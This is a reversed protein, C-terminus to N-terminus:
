IFENIYTFTNIEESARITTYGFENIAKKVYCYMSCHLNFIRIWICWVISYKILFSLKKREFVSNELLILTSVVHCLKWECCIALVIIYNFSMLNFNYQPKVKIQCDYISICTINRLIENLSLIIRTRVKWKLETVTVHLSTNWDLVYLNYTGKADSCFFMAVLWLRESPFVWRGPSPMKYPLTRVGSYSHFVQWPGFIWASRSMSCTFSSSGPRQEFSSQEINIPCQSPFTNKSCINCLEKHHYM